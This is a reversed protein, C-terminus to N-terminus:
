SVYNQKNDIINEDIVVPNETTPLSIEEDVEEKVKKKKEVKVYLKRYNNYNTIGGVISIVSCVAFMLLLIFRMSDVSFDNFRGVIVSAATILLISIFFKLKEVKTNMFVVEVLYIVGRAYLVGGLLFPFLLYLTQTEDITATLIIMLLGVVFDTFMEIANIAIAWREKTTKLLPIFRIITFGILLTGFLYFVISNGFERSVLMVVSLVALACGIVWLYLWKYKKFVNKEM